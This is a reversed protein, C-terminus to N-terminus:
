PPPHVPRILIERLRSSELCGLGLNSPQLEPHISAGLKERLSNWFGRLGQIALTPGREPIALDFHLLWGYRLLDVRASGSARFQRSKSSFSHCSYM